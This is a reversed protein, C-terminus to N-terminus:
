KGLKDQYIHEAGAFIKLRAMRVKRSRNKPLMNYVADEIIKTPNKVRQEALTRHKLGGPFGSHSYYIKGKEKNGTVPVEKANIVVVYDGSDMHESFTVKGKGMLLSAIRTALRGLVQEKADLLHWARKVESAKPQYTKHTLMIKNLV